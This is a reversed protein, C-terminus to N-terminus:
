SFTFCPVKKLEANANEYEWVFNLSVQYLASDHKEVYCIIIIQGSGQLKTLFFIIKSLMCKEATSFVLSLSM